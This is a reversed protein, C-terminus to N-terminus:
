NDRRLNDNIASKLEGDLKFLYDVMKSFVDILPKNRYWYQREIGCLQYEKPKRATKGTGSCRKCSEGKISGTARCKYCDVAQYENNILSTLAGNVLQLVHAQLKGPLSSNFKLYMAAITRDQAAMNDLYVGFLHDMHRDDISKLALLMDIATKEGTGTSTDDLKSTKAAISTLLKEM